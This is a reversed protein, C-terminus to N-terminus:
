NKENKVNLKQATSQTGSIALSFLTVYKVIWRLLYFRPSEASIFSESVEDKDETGKLLLCGSPLTDWLEM